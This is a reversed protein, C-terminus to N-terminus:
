EWNAHSHLFSAETRQHLEELREVGKKMTESVANNLFDTERIKSMFSLGEFTTCRSLVVYLTMFDCKGPMGDPLSRRGRLEAVIQIFNEGQSKYDTIAFAPTCPIGTRTCSVSIGNHAKPQLKQSM